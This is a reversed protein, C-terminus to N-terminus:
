QLGHNADLKSLDLKCLRMGAMVQEPLENDPHGEIVFAIDLVMHELKKLVLPFGRRAIYSFTHIDIDLEVYDKHFYLRHQPRTLLPTGNWSTLMSREGKSMIPPRLEDTNDIIVILKFRDHLDSDSKLFERWMASSGAAVEDERPIAFYMVMSMGEGDHKSDGWLPNAPPYTPCQFNVIFIRRGGPAAPLVIQQGINDIKRQLGVFFDMELAQFLAPGSPAKRKNKKYDPGVRVQFKSADTTTWCGPVTAGPECKQVTLGAKAAKAGAPSRAAEAGCGEEGEDDELMEGLRVVPSNITAGRERLQIAAEHAAAISGLRTFRPSQVLGVWATGDVDKTEGVATAAQTAAQSVPRAPALAPPPPPTTARTRKVKNLPPPTGARSLQPSAM